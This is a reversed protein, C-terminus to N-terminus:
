RAHMLGDRQMDLSQPGEVESGVTGVPAVLQRAGALAQARHRRGAHQVVEEEGDGFHKPHFFGHPNARSVVICGPRTCGAVSAISLLETLAFDDSM